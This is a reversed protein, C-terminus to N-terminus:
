YRQGIAGDHYISAGTVFRAEESALYVFAHATDEPDSSIGLPGMGAISAEAEEVTPYAGLKVYDALGERILPTMTLGPHVSNVRIKMPGFEVAACLTLMRGAAKSVHYGINIGSPMYSAMSLNNIVSGGGPFRQVSRKLEPLCAKTGIFLADHNVAMVKRLDDLSSHEIGAHIAIGANNVLVDIGGFAAATEAAVQAWNAESTVDHTLFRFHEAPASRALRASVVESEATRFDTAVVRAGERLYAECIAVGINGDRGAGTVIAVKGGLRGAM